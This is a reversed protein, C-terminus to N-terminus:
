ENEPDHKKLGNLKIKFLECCIDYLQDSSCAIKGELNDKTNLPNNRLVEQFDDVSIRRKKLSARSKRLNKFVFEGQDTLDYFIIEGNKGFKMRGHLIANRMNELLDNKSGEEFVQSDLKDEYDVQSSFCTSFIFQSYLIVDIDLVKKDILKGKQDKLLIGISEFGPIEFLGKNKKLVDSWKADPNDIIYTNLCESVSIMLYKNIVEIFNSKDYKDFDRDFDRYTASSQSVLVGLYNNKRLKRYLSKKKGISLNKLDKTLNSLMILYGQADKLLGKTMAKSLSLKLADLSISKDGFDFFIKGCRLHVKDDSHAGHNRIVYLIDLLSIQSTAELMENLKEDSQVNDMNIYAEYQEKYAIFKFLAYYESLSNLKNIYYNLRKDEKILQEKVQSFSLDNEIMRKKIELLLQWLKNFVKLNVIEREDDTM